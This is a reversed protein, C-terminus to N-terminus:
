GGAQPSSVFSVLSAKETRQDPKPPGRCSNQDLPTKRRGGPLLILLKKLSKTPIEGVRCRSTM